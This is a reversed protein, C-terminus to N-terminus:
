NPCLGQAKSVFDEVLAVYRCDFDTDQCQLPAGIALLETNIQACYDVAPGRMVNITAKLRREAQIRPQDELLDVGNGFQTLVASRTSDGHSVKITRGSLDGACEDKLQISREWSLGALGVALADGGPEQSPVYSLAGPLFFQFNETPEFPAFWRAFSADVVKSSSCGNCTGDFYFALGRGRRAIESLLESRLETPAVLPTAATGLPVTSLQAVSVHVRADGSNSVLAEVQGLTNESPVLGGDTLILVHSFLFADGENDKLLEQASKLAGPLDGGELYALRTRELDLAARAEGSPARDVILETTGAFSALSFTYGQHADVGDALSNLVADRGESVAATSPSVDLLVVLNAKTESAARGVSRASLQYLGPANQVSVFAFSVPNEDTGVDVNALDHLYDRVQSFGLTKPPPLWGSAVMAVSFQGAALDRSQEPSLEVVTDPLDACQLAGGGGAGRPGEGGDSPVIGGGFGGAGANTSGGSGSLVSEGGGEGTPPPELLEANSCGANLLGVFAPVFCRM